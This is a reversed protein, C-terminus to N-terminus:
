NEIDGNICAASIVPDRDGIQIEKGSEEGCLGGVDLEIRIGPPAKEIGQVTGLSEVLGTFM